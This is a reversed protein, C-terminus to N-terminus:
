FYYTYRDVIEYEEIIIQPIFNGLWENLNCTGIINIKLHGIDTYLQDFEEQSSNFKILTLGGPLIIKLTPKKDPSMLILNDKHVPINEIAVYPETLGQGWYGKLKGLQMIDNQFQETNNAQWIFDVRYSNSFDFNKLEERIYDKLKQLNDDIISAGFASPHGQAFEMLGSYELFERFNDLKSYTANRGSGQWKNSLVEGTNEDVEICHNLILVPRMYSSMIKNAILGTLNESVPEELQIIIVPLNLLNNSEIQDQIIGLSTEVLKTQRSKINKCTRCAQEVRTELEGKHGRKTSPIEEYARFDLMSEFLLLKEDLSGVRIVANIYPAVYFSIGFPTLEGKLSYAQAKVFEFIFPNEINNIGLSILERTEFNRLDMMDSVLGVAVLDLLSDAKREGEKLLSDIYQCFKYVIGVGSLTKNPYDCLQNNIVCAYESVKDAEHHDLILVDIGKEKLAKHVEYDNSSSDPAIVLKVDEPITDLILGHQKGDHLRYNINNQTHGPAIKNLYNILAAASTFGDVDPDVQIFIKDGATLHSILMKAGRDMNDLLTPPLIDEITTHLYHDIDSPPIDRNAFVQEIVSLNNKTLIKPKLLQYELKIVRRIEM